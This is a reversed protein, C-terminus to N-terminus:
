RAGTPAEPGPPAGALARAAGQRDGSALLVRALAVAAGLSSEPGARLASEIAPEFDASAAYAWSDLLLMERELWAAGSWGPGAGARWRRGRAGGLVAGGRRSWAPRWASCGTRGPACPKTPGSRGAAPPHWSTGTWTCAPCRWRRRSATPPHRRATTKRAGVP